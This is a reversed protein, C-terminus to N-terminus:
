GNICVEYRYKAKDFIFFKGNDLTIKFYCNNVIPQVDQATMFVAVLNTKNEYVRIVRM